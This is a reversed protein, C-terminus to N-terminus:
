GTGTYVPLWPRSRSRAVVLQQRVLVAFESLAMAAYLHFRAAPDRSSFGLNKSFTKKLKKFTKLTCLLRFV